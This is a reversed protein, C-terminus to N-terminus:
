SSERLVVAKRIVSVTEAWMGLSELSDLKVWRADLVDDEAKPEGELWDALVEVLTYHYRVRREPDRTVSDVVTIIARPRIALGTEERVEREAAEFVSEGVHQAGGPIGWQGLRPAKGRQILLVEDGRLVVVGIGVWPRSPYERDDSTM